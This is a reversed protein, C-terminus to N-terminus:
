CKHCLDWFGCWKKSCWWERSGPPFSGRAISEAVREIVFQAWRWDHAGRSASIMKVAPTKTKTLCNFAVQTVKTVLSYITLQMDNQADDASKARSVVKHDVIVPGVLTSKPAHDEALLDIYGLMPVRMEGITVWFRREIFPGIPDVVAKLVPLHDRQYLSLLARGRSLVQDENADDENEANWDIDSRVNKWADAHADLMMDLPVNDTKLAERHGVELGRHIAKGEAMAISPPMIIGKVVRFEFQRPCKLYQSIQSASLYGKPLELSCEEISSEELMKQYEKDADTNEVGELFVVRNETTTTPDSV